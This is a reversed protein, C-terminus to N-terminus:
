ALIAGPLREVGHSVPLRSCITQSDGHLPCMGAFTIDPHREFAEQCHAQKSAMFCRVTEGFSTILVVNRSTATKSNSRARLTLRAASPRGHGGEHRDWHDEHLVYQGHGSDVFSVTGIRCSCFRMASVMRRM